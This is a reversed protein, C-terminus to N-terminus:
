GPGAAYVRVVVDLIGPYIQTGVLHYPPPFHASGTSISRLRELEPRNPDRAALAVVYIRHGRAAVTARAIAQQLTVTPDFVNFPHDREQPAGARFVDRSRKLVLDLGSLPGPSVLFATGDIVVDDPGAHRAVFHAAAGYHPREFRPTLMKVAGIAFAVVALTAVVYRLRPGAAAFLWGLLLACPPWAPALNRVAFLHTSVASVAAEALPVSLFMAVVLLLRRDLHALALPAAGQGAPRLAGLAAVAIVGALALLVLAPKGPLERLTAFSSYPYGVLWHELTIRISDPTFPSLASLIKSTPSTFDNRLGTIWPLYAVGAGLNAVIAPKRAEPHAWLLWLLQAALLFFCTYHSYAAGLTAVAYVVWWRTRRTEIAVLMAVSSLVTFGMMVAYGRAEASYYVMFPAFTTLATAVLAAARGVTRVGLLYVLPITAAGAVLSPLRLLEPSHGLQTSLWSAVFYLPPTIEANSHVTSLVGGLGHATVIWYTSLEDAFVAQHAVAVRIAIGVATLLGVLLAPFAPLALPRREPSSSRGARADPAPEAVQSADM